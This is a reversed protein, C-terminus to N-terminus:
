LLLGHLLLLVLLRHLLGAANSTAAQQRITLRVQKVPWFLLTFFGELTAKVYSVASAKLM